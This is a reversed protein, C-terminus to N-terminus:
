EVKQLLESVSLFKAERHQELIEQVETDDPPLSDTKLFGKMKQILDKRNSRETSTNQLSLAIANILEIREEVSLKIAQNKIEQLNM